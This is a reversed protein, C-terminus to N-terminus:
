HKLTNQRAHHKTTKRVKEGYYPLIATELWSFPPPRFDGLGLLVEDVGRVGEVFSLNWRRTSLGLRDDFSEFRIPFSDLSELSDFNSFTAISELERAKMELIIFSRISFSNETRSPLINVSTLFM